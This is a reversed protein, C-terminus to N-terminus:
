HINNYRKVKLRNVARAMKTKAINYDLFSKKQLLAEKAEEASRRARNEDIEDPMELTDVLILVENNEVKVMGESVAAIIVEGDDTTIKLEGPIIAAIMNSHMAQIGYQGKITPIVLSVCGGHYFPKEAALVDLAFTNM